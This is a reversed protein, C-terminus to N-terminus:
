SVKAACGKCLAGAATNGEDSNGENYCLYVRHIKKNTKSCHHASKSADIGCGCCCLVDEIAKKKERIRQRLCIFPHSCAFCRRKGAIPERLAKANKAEAQICDAHRVHLCGGGGARRVLVTAACVSGNRNAAKAFIFLM